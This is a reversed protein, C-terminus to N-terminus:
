KGFFLKDCLELYQEPKKFKTISAKNKYFEPMKVTGSKCKELLIEFGEKVPVTFIDGANLKELGSVIKEAFLMLSAVTLLRPAISNMVSQSIPTKTRSEELLIQQLDYWDPHFGVMASEGFDKSGFLSVFHESAVRANHEAMDKRMQLEAGSEGDEGDGNFNDLKRNEAQCNYQALNYIYFDNYEALLEEARSIECRTFLPCDL